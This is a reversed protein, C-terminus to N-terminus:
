LVKSKYINLFLNDDQLFDSSGFNEMQEEYWLAYNKGFKRLDPRKEKHEESSNM